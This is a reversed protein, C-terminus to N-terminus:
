QSHTILCELREIELAIAQSVQRQGEARQRAQHREIKRVVAEVEQGQTYGGGDEMGHM